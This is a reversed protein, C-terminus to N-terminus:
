APQPPGPPGAAGGPGGWHPNRPYWGAAEGGPPVGFGWITFSCPYHHYQQCVRWTPTRPGYAGSVNTNQVQNPRCLRGFWTCFWISRPPSQGGFRGDSYALLILSAM